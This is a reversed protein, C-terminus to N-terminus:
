LLVEKKLNKETWASMTIPFLKSLEYYVQKAEERIEYQASDDLRHKLFHLWERLNASVYFETNMGIPLVMRAVEAPVKNELMAKYVSFTEEIAMKFLSYNGENGFREKKVSTDLEDLKVYRLSRELFSMHRHRMWQRQVVITTKVLFTAGAFEFVSDHGLRVLMEIMQETSKTSKNGHSLKAIKAILDDSGWSDILKIM